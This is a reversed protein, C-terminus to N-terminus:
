RRRDVQGQTLSHARKSWAGRSCHSRGPTSRAPSPPASATRSRPTPRTPRRAAPWPASPVQGRAQGLTIILTHTTADWTITSEDAVTSGSFTVKGGTVFGTSGLKVTGFRFTCSASTVTLTDNAVGGDSLTVTVDGLAALSQDTFDGSWTACMTSVKLTQSFMVVIQDGQEAKGATGGTDVLQMTTPTPASNQVEVM